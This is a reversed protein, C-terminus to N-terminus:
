ATHAQEPPFQVLYAQRPSWVAISIKRLPPSSSALYRGGIELSWANFLGVEHATLWTVKGAGDCAQLSVNIYHTAASESWCLDLNHAFQVQAVTGARTRVVLIVWNAFYGATGCPVWRVVTGTPVRGQKSVPAGLCWHHHSFTIEGAYVNGSAAQAQPAGLALGAAIIASAIILKRM